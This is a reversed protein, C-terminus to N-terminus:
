WKKCFKKFGKNKVESLENIPQHLAFGKIEKLIRERKEVDYWIAQTAVAKRFFMDCFKM